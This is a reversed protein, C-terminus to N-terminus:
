CHKLRYFITYNLSKELSKLSKGTSKLASKIKLSKELFGKSNLYKKLRHSGQQFCTKKHQPGFTINGQLVVESLKHICCSCFDYKKTYAAPVVSRSFWINETFKEMEKM